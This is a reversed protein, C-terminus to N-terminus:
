NLGKGRLESDPNCQMKSFTKGAWFLNCTIDKRISTQPFELSLMLAVIVIESHEFLFLFFM